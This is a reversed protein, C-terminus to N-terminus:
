KGYAFFIEEGVHIDRNSVIFVKGTAVRVSRANYEFGSYTPISDRRTATRFSEIQSSSYTTGFVHVADNILSCLTDGAIVFRSNDQKVKTHFLKNVPVGVVRSDASYALGRYECIIENAPIDIKAFVGVGAEWIPLTTPATYLFLYDSHIGDQQLHVPKDSQSKKLNDEVSEAAVASLVPIVFLFASILFKLVLM